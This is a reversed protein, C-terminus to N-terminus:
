LDATDELDPMLPDIPLDANPLTAANVLISGGLNVYSSGVASVHTFMRYPSNGNADNNVANVPLSIINLRNTSNTNAAEEQGFLRKSEQKLQKILAEEQDRLDKEQDNKDGEKALDHVGNEKRPVETSKKGADDAVEDELSKPGQFDSTLLPLMVYQPGPVTRKAALGANINEKTGANVNTQGGAFVPQYNM